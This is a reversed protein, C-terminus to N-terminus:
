SEDGKWWDESRENNLASSLSVIAEAAHRLATGVTSFNDNSAVANRNVAENLAAVTVALSALQQELKDIRRATQWWLM